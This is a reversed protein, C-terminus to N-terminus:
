LYLLQFESDQRLIARFSIARLKATLTAAANAFMYNQLGIAITSLIAIVFFYLASRDGSLRRQHPDLDAFGGIAKAFAIGFAPYVM